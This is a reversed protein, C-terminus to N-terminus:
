ITFQNVFFSANIIPINRYPNLILLDNDGTIICAANACVALELFKNDKPDRCDSITEVPSFVIKNSTIKEAARWREEQTFYKDFKKRFLVDIFEDLTAESFALKGHQTAINLAQRSVSASLIFASILSNTDFDFVNSM